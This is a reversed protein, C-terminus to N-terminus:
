LVATWHLMKSLSAGDRGLCGATVSTTTLLKVTHRLCGFKVIYDWGCRLKDRMASYQLRGHKANLEKSHSESWWPCKFHTRRVHVMLRDTYSFIHLIIFLLFLTAFYTVSAM